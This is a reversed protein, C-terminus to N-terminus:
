VVSKRDTLQANAHLGMGKFFTKNQGDIKLTIQNGEPPMDKRISGWGVFSWNNTTIYDLDSLYQKNEGEKTAAYVKSTVLITVCCFFLMLLIKSWVKQQNNKEKM